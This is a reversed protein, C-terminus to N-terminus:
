KGKNLLWLYNRIMAEYRLRELDSMGDMALGELPSIGWRFLVAVCTFCLSIIVLILNCVVHWSTSCFM